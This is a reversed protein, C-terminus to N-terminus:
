RKDGSERFAERERRIFAEGGGLKRFIDKAIGRVQQFPDNPKTKHSSAALRYTFKVTTSLGSPPGEKKELLLHNERLFEPSALASCVAPVRNNLHLQKHIEGATIRVVREGRRRAPDIYASRAYRRITNALDGREM